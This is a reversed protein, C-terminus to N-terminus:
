VLMCVGESGRERVGVIQDGTFFTETLTDADLSFGHGGLRKVNQGKVPGSLLPLSFSHQSHCICIGCYYSDSCVYLIINHTHMIINNIIIHPDHIYMYIDTGSLIISICLENMLYLM